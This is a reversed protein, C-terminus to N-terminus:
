KLAHYLFKFTVSVVVFSSAKTNKIHFSFNLGISCLIEIM